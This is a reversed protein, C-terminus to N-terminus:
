SRSPEIRPAHFVENKRSSQSGQHIRPWQHPAGPLLRDILPTLLNTLFLAFFVAEPIYFVFRMGVALLATLAAFVIRGTVTAPTTRPDTIMFFAFLLLTGSQMQHLPIALPDGLWLARALLLGGYAGLFALAIDLRAASLLVMGGLCICLFGLWIETGWQGPSVWAGSTLLLAAVIAFTSPNFIHRGRFRILFKSSIGAAAVCVALLPGDVRLLLSLSLGTILASRFDFSTRVIRSFLAQTVLAAAVYLAAHVPETQFDFFLIGASLLIFQAAM